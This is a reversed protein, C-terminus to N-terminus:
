GAEGPNNFTFRRELSIESQIRFKRGIISGDQFSAGDLIKVNQFLAYQNLAATFRAVSEINPWIGDVEVIIYDSTSTKASKKNKGMRTGKRDTGERRLLRLEQISADRPLAEEITSLIAALPLPGELDQGSKLMALLEDRQKILLAVTEADQEAEHSAAQLKQLAQGALATRATLVVAWVLTVALIASLAVTVHKIRKQTECESVFGPPIFNIKKM